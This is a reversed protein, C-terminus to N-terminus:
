MLENLVNVDAPLPLYIGVIVFPIESILAHLLIYRGGPDLKVELIQFPLSKNVLISIGRAYNSYPAHYHGGVWAKKLSLICSGVLHTEQLICAQPRLRRLYAFVLSRNVASNLGRVNWSVVVCNAM